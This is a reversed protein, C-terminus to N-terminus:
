RLYQTNRILDYAFKLEDAYAGRGNANYTDAISNPTISNWGTIVWTEDRRGATDRASKKREFHAARFLLYAAGAAINNYASINAAGLAGRLSPPVILNERPTQTNM